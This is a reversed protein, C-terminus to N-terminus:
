SGFSKNMLTHWYFTEVRKKVALSSGFSIKMLSHWYPEEMMMLSSGFSMKKWCITKALM